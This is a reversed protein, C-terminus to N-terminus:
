HSRAFAESPKPGTPGQITVSRAGAERVTLVKRFPVSLCDSATFFRKKSKAVMMLSTESVMARAGPSM